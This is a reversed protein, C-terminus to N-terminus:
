SPHSGDLTFIFASCYNFLNPSDLCGTQGIWSLNFNITLKWRNIMQSLVTKSSILLILFNPMKLFLSNNRFPFVFYLHIYFYIFSRNKPKRYIDVALVFIQESLVSLHPNPASYSAFSTQPKLSFVSSSISFNWVLLFFLYLQM